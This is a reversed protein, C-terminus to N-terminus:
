EAPFKFSMVAQGIMDKEADWNQALVAGTIIYVDDGNAAYLQMNKLAVGNQMYSGGILTARSGNSLNVNRDSLTKYDVIKPSSQLIAKSKAVYAALDAVASNKFNDKVVSINENFINKGAADNEPAPKFFVALPRAAVAGQRAIWGAPAIITKELKVSEALIAPDITKAQEPNAQATETNEPSATKNEVSTQKTAAPPNKQNDVAANKKDKGGRLLLMAAAGAIILIITLGAALIIKRRMNNGTKPSPSDFQEGEFSLNSERREISSEADFFAEDIESQHWGQGLLVDTIDNKSVGINLQQKIYDVLEKNM